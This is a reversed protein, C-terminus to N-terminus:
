KEGSPETQGPVAPKGGLLVALRQNLWFPDHQAKWDLVPKFEDGQQSALLWLAVMRVPWADHNLNESISATMGYDLGVSYRGLCSMIHVRIKWNEDMIARRVSDALLSPEIAVYKYSITGQKAAAQEAYLGAFLEAARIRQGEQGKAVADLRQLLFERTMEAKKRRIVTQILGAGDVGNGLSGDGTVVPDLYLVFDIDVSAQPCIFLLRSLEGRNVDLRVTVSEGPLIARSPRFTGELLSPIKKRIDGRIDVDIRYRGTLMGDKGIILPMAGTNELTLRADLPSGYFFEEGGFNLKAKFLKNLAVFEPIIQKDFRDKLSTEIVGPSLESIYDSGSEKLASKAKLMIPLSSPKDLLEKLLEVAKAKQDQHIYVGALVLAAIPDNPALPEAYQRAMDMQQNLLFAYAMLSKAGPLNPEKTYIRNCWALAKEPDETGFCYFWGTNLAYIGEQQGSGQQELKEAAGALIQKKQDPTGTKEAALAAVAEIIPNVVGQERMRQAIGACQMQRSSTLYCSQIWGLAIEEHLGKGPELYEYLGAAYAFAEAALEYLGAHYATQAFGMAAQLSGPNVTLVLRDLILKETVATNATPPQTLDMLKSVALLNYPNLHVAYDFQSAAGAYDAKEAAYLGLQAAVDSAFVPNSAALRGLSRSLLAEREQRTDAQEIVCNLALAAVDLDANDDMYRKMAALITDSYDENGSSRGAGRLFQEYVSASQEDLVIGAQLFIMCIDAQSPSSSPIDNGLRGFLEATGPSFLTQQQLQPAACVVGTILGMWAAIYVFDRIVM